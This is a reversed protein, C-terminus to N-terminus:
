TSEFIFLGILVIVVPWVLTTVFAIVVDKFAGSQKVRYWATVVPILVTVVFLFLPWLEIYEQLSGGGIWIVIGIITFIAGAVQLTIKWSKKFVIIWDSEIPKINM